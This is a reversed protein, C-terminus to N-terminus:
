PEDDEPKRMEPALAIIPVVMYTETTALLGASSPHPDYVVEGDITVVAHHQGRAKSRVTPGCSIVPLADLDDRYDRPFYLGAGHVHVLAFGKYRLWRQTAGNPDDQNEMVFHPVDLAPIGIVAAICCRWCDGIKGDSNLFTQKPISSWYESTSM